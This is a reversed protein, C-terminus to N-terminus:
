LVIYTYTYTLSESATLASNFRFNAANAVGDGVIRVVRANSGQDSGFQGVGALSSSGGLTSAVPLSLDFQVTGTTSPDATVIGSVHVINGVRLWFANGPVVSDFGSLGSASPTYNGSSSTATDSATRVAVGNAQVSGAKLNIVSGNGDVRIRETGSTAIVLPQTGSSHILSQEGTPGGGVATTSFNAGFRQFDLFRGADNIIAFDASASTGTNTNVVSLVNQGNVSRSFSNNTSLRAYDTVVVGNFTVTAPFTHTGTYTEGDKQAFNELSGRTVRLEFRSGSAFAAASTSEQARTITCIDGTRATLRVVEIVGLSSELTCLAYQGGTPAPFNAGQGATLTLSTDGAIISSALTGSANNTYVRTGM